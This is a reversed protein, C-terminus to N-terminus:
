GKPAESGTSRREGRNAAAEAVREEPLFGGDKLTQELRVAEALHPKLQDWQLDDLIKKLRDEPLRSLQFLVGYYDYEGFRRPPRTEKLLLEELQRHQFVTLRLTTDMM